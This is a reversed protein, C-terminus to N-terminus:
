RRRRLFLLGSFAALGLTTPEPIACWTVVDQRSDNKLYTLSAPAFTNVNTLYQNALTITDMAGSDTIRVSGNSLSPPLISEAMTEWIAWQVAAADQTSQSSALYGGVLRSITNNTELSLPNQIQYILTEGFGISQYPDVCFAVFSDFKMVGALHSEVTAGDNFTAQVSIGPNIEVFTASLNQAKSQSALIAFGLAAACSLIRKITM